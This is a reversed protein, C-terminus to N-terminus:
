ASAATSAVPSIVARGLWDQLAALFEVPTEMQPIHGSDELEVYEWDPRLDAAARAARVKVLRDQRGHILMTPATVGRIWREVHGSIFLTQVISRSAEIVPSHWDPQRMRETELAVMAAVMAPDVRAPDVACRELTQRVMGEAGVKTGVRDMYYAGLRPVLFAALFRLSVPDFRLVEGRPAPLAPDVLVHGALLDSRGAAVGLSLLGGMSNGVLVAPGEAVREILHELVRVNAGISASRGASASRGFGPLDPALVRHDRALADAVSMWNLHSGGLGHVLLMTRGSGGYDAVFLPGGIDVTFSRM